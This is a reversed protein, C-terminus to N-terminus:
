ESVCSIIKNRYVMNLKIPEGISATTFVEFSNDTFDFVYGSRNFLLLFTGEEEKSVFQM